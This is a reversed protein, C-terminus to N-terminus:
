RAERELGGVEGIRGAVGDLALEELAAERVQVERERRAEQRFLQPVAGRLAATQGVLEVCAPEHEEVCRPQPELLTPARPGPVVGVDHVHTLLHDDPARARLFMRDRPRRLAPPATWTSASTSTIIGTTTSRRTALGVRGPSLEPATDPTATGHLIDRDVLRPVRRMM